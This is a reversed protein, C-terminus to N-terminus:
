QQARLMGKHTTQKGLWAGKCFVLNEDTGRQKWTLSPHMNIRKETRPGWTPCVWIPGTGMAGTESKM